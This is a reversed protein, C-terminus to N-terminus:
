CKSNCTYGEIGMFFQCFNTGAVFLSGMGPYVLELQWTVTRDHLIYRLFLLHHSTSKNQQIQLQHMVQRLRLFLLCIFILSMYVFSRGESSAFIAFKPTLMQFILNKDSTKSLYAQICIPLTTHHSYYIGTLITDYSQIVYTLLM